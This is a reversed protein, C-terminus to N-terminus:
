KKKKTAPKVTKLPTEKPPEPKTVIGEIEDALLSADYLKRLSEIMAATHVAVARNRAEEYVFRGSLSEINGDFILGVVEANKNIVPSGSNGGIIDNTTVFNMATALQVKNVGDKFRQPLEFEPQNQFSYARDYLGYMTTMSPAVTGNMPFVKVTGYSLRLTFTADPPLDKGYVAFRAKGAAESASATIGSINKEQWATMEDGIGVIRRAMAILPDQSATIEEEGAEILAKRFAPDGLKTNNIYFAAAEQPTKGDLVAKVWPDNSGLMDLAEAFRDALQVEELDPYIPAPSFLSYKTAEINADQFAATREGNPKKIERAFRAITLANSALKGSVGRFTLEKFMMKSREIAAAVSDWAWAFKAKLEPNANVAERLNLEEKIKKAMVNKDLLGNYEGTWAKQANEIGRISTVARRRQEEGRSAYDRLVKLRREVNKLRNPYSYDRAYEIQSVTQQRNTSGPHGSVFVLEGDSAGATKWKLYHPPNYPKDNEYVRFFTMDLDYRPFTFNDPDGGFFAIQEEPAMVLRVDTFKKYRYIWYESGNYFPVIDSRLGTRERSEKTLEAIKSKRASLAEKQTMGEKATGLIKETVNEMEVLVNLELDPCRLEASTTKAYFGNKVFDNEQTSLKQIQGLGVHHNTMVLGNPSIFSGSGGDNFRVSSLRVHTMWDETVDFGYKEKLQKGPPNDFTWMGEDAYVASLILVFGAMIHMIQKM